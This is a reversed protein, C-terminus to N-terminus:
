GDEKVGDKKRVQLSYCGPVVEYCEPVIVDRFQLLVTYTHILGYSYLCTIFNYEKIIVFKNREQEVSFLVKGLSVSVRLIQSRITRMKTQRILRGDVPNPEQKVLIVGLGIM